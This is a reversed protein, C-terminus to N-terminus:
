KGRKELGDVRKELTDVRSVLDAVTRALDDVSAKAVRTFDRWSDTKVFAVGGETRAVGLERAFNQATALGMPFVLTTKGDPAIVGLAKLEPISIAKTAEMTRVRQALLTEGTLIMSCIVFVVVIMKGKM